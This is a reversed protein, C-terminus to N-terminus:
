EQTKWTNRSVVLVLLLQLFARSPEYIFERADTQRRLENGRFPVRDDPRAVFMLGSAACNQDVSM